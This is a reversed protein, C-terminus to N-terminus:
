GWISKAFAEVQQLRKVSKRLNESIKKIDKGRNETAKIYKSFKKQFEISADGKWASAVAAEVQSLEQNAFNQVNNGIEELHNAKNLTDQLEIQIKGM